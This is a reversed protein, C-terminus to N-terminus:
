CQRKWTANLPVITSQLSVQIEGFADSETRPATSQTMTLLHGWDSSKRMERVMKITTSFARKNNNVTQLRPFQSVRSNFSLARSGSIPSRAAVSVLNRAAPNAARTAHTLTAM